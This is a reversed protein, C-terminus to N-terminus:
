GGQVVLRRAARRLLGRGLAVLVATWVLQHAIMAFAELVGPEGLYLRFPTDMLGRWPLVAALPQFWDPFFALPIIAGAFVNTLSMSISQIGRGEITFMMAVSLLTTLAASLMLAALLSVAFTLAAFSSPPPEMGLWLLALVVMPLCRLLAPATRLAVARAFWLGYLDVPRLLEYAVNGSRVAAQVEPDPRWPLLLLLAQKLWTYTVVAQLTMPQPGSSSAFFATFVMVQLLGWFVQTGLGALAAARYQLLGRFRASFMAVYPRM